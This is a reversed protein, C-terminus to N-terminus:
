SVLKVRHTLVESVGTQITFLEGHKRRAKIERGVGIIKERNAQSSFLSIVIKQKLDPILM